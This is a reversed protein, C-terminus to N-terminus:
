AVWFNEADYELARVTEAQEEIWKVLASKAADLTEHCLMAPVAFARGRHKTRVMREWKSPESVLHACNIDMSRVDVVFVVRDNGAM